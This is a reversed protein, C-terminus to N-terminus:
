VDGHYLSGLACLPFHLRVQTAEKLRMKCYDNRLQKEIYELHM